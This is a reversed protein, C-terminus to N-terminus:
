MSTTFVLSLLIGPNNAEPFSVPPHIAPVYGYWKVPVARLKASFEARIAPSFAALYTEFYDNKEKLLM